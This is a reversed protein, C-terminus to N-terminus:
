TVRSEPNAAARRGPIVTSLTRRFVHQIAMGFAGRERLNPLRRHDPQRCAHHLTRETGTDREPERGRLGIRQFDADAIADRGFLLKPKEDGLGVDALMVAFVVRDLARAKGAGVLASLRELGAG